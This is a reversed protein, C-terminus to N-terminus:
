FEKSRWICDGGKASQIYDFSEDDLEMEEGPVMYKRMYPRYDRPEPKLLIFEGWESDTSTGRTGQGFAGSGSQVSQWKQILEPHRMEWWLRHDDFRFAQTLEEKTFPLKQIYAMM